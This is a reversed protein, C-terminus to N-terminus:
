GIKSGEKIKKEPTLIVLNNKDDAALLMGNSEIGRLRAPELNAVVIIQKDILEKPKYYNKIGAVLTRMESGLDITLVYLKDANPHDEVKKITAVRLDLKKFDEYKIKETM